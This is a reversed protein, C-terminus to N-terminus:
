ENAILDVDKINEPFWLVMEGKGRNAWAFYPIATFAQEVTKVSNAAADVWVAPVNSKIVTIGNLLGATFTSTFSITSPLVINAARGNNDTWEACYMLPGRQLAVKGIDDKLKNGASVRRIEMPLMVEVKDNKKWTRNLVAYGKELSYTVPQGNIKITVEATSRTTYTYLDSPIAENRAWGPIRVQLSFAQPSKPSVLFNLGGDWPYNNQQVLEVPNGNILISSTSNVFLNIYLKDNNQAYVYGPVSPLLRVVNTPCCSCDFWGSRTAEMAPHSFSNKIQMANTYFFSKGDLGVGSILGNYLTKELIDIYKSDGHLLFMRENWFV